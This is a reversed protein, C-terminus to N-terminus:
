SRRGAITTIRPRGRELRRCAPRSDFHAVGFERRTAATVVDVGEESRDRRSNRRRKKLWESAHELLFQHAASPASVKPGRAISLGPAVVSAIAMIRLCDIEQGEIASKLLSIFETEIVGTADFMEEIISTEEWAALIVKARRLIARRQRVGEALFRIAEFVDRHRKSEKAQRRGRRVVLAAMARALIRNCGCEVLLPEYGRSPPLKAMEQFVQGILEVFGKHAQLLEEFAIVYPKM